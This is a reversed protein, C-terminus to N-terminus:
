VASPGERGWAQYTALDQTYLKDAGGELFSGALLLSDAPKISDRCLAWPLRNVANDGRLGTYIHSFRQRAVRLADASFSQLNGFTYAFHDVSQNVMTELADASAVIETALNAVPVGSLRAHTATHGGVTHGAAALHQLDSAAM